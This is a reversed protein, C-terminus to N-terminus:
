VFKTHTKNRPIIQVKVRIFNFWTSSFVVAILKRWSALASRIEPDKRFIQTLLGMFAVKTLCPLTENMAVISTLTFLFQTFIFIILIKKKFTSHHDDCMLSYYLSLIKSRRNREETMSKIIMPKPM